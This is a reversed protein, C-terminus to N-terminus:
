INPLQNNFFTNAYDLILINNYISIICNLIIHKNM